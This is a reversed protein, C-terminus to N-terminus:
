KAAEEKLVTAIQRQWSQREEETSQLATEGAFLEGRVHADLLEGWAELMKMTDADDPLAEAVRVVQGLWRFIEGAKRKGILYPRQVEKEVSPKRPGGGEGIGMGPRVMRIESAPLIVKTGEPKAQSILDTLSHGLSKLQEDSLSLRGTSYFANTRLNIEWCREPWQHGKTLNECEAEFTLSSYDIWIDHSPAPDYDAYRWVIREGSETASDFPGFKRVHSWAETTASLTIVSKAIKGKWPGGSSVTYGTRSGGKLNLRYNVKHSVTQNAPYTTKWDYYWIDFSVGHRETKASRLTTDHIDGDTECEFSIVNKKLGIPYCVDLQIDEDSYNKFMFTVDVDLVLSGDVVELELDVQESEMGIELGELDDLQKPGVGHGPLPLHRLVSDRM